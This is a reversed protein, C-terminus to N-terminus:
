SEFVSPFRCPKVGRFKEALAGLHPHRSAIEYFETLDINIGLVKDLLNRVDTELSKWRPADHVTVELKPRRQSGTQHVTILIPRDRLAYARQFAQENDDWHHLADQPRRKLLWTVLDLRFPAVPSIEFSRDAM